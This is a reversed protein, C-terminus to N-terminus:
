ASRFAERREVCVAIGAARQRFVPLVLFRAQGCKLNINQLRTGFPDDSPQSLNKVVLRPEGSSDAVSRSPPTLEKGIM